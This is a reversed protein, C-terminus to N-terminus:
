DPTCIMGWLNENGQEKEIRPGDTNWGRGPGDKREDTTVARAFDAAMHDWTYGRLTAALGLFRHPWSELDRRWAWLRDALAAPDEPDGLVMDHLEPPYRESVGAASSVIVPRGRCIAEAVAVGYPEYRAPHVLVDCAALLRPVDTRFGLFRVRCALGEDAARAEWRPLNCGSGVVALNADWRPDRCLVRWAAYLTDFGKVRNGLQGVFAVWPRDEWQLAARAGAREDPNVPPFRAPDIGLYVVRVRDPEVGVRDVVDAATRRSNCVVVRSARLISREAQLNLAHHARGKARRAWGGNVPVPCAAHVYHVWNVDSWRCNGGNVVVRFHGRALRRAWRRGAHALLPEGLLHRGLPRAVRHVTVNPHAALDGWARHTVLHLPGRGALFRALGLNASDMGGLPTFDGAVMLWGNM